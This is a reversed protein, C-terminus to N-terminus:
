FRQTIDRSDDLEEANLKWIQLILIYYPHFSKDSTHSSSAVSM